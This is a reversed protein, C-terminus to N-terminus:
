CHSERGQEKLNKEESAIVPEVITKGLNPFESWTTTGTDM